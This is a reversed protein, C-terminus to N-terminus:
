KNKLEIKIPSYTNGTLNHNIEINKPIDINNQIGVNLPNIVSFFYLVACTATMVRMEQYSWFDLLLKQLNHPLLSFGWSFLFLLSVSFFVIFFLVFVASM